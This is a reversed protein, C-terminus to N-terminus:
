RFIGFATECPRNNSMIKQKDFSKKEGDCYKIISCIEAYNREIVLMVAIRKMSKGLYLLYVLKRFQKPYPSYVNCGSQNISFVITPEM